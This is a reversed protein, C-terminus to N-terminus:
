RRRAFLWVVVVAGLAVWLAPPRTELWTSVSYALQRVGAVVAAIAGYEALTQAFMM